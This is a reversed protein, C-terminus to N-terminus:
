AGRDETDVWVKGEADIAKIRGIEVGTGAPPSITIGTADNGVKGVTGVDGPGVAAAVDNDFAMLGMGVTLDEGIAVNGQYAFGIGRVATADQGPVVTGAANVAVINKADIAIAVEFTQFHTPEKLKLGYFTTM